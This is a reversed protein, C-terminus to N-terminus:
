NGTAWGRAPLEDLLDAGTQWFELSRGRSRAAEVIESPLTAAAADIHSGVADHWWKSNAVKPEESALSYLELAREVDDDDLLLLAILTLGLLLPMITRYKVAIKLAQLAHKRSEGVKGLKLLAFGLLSLSIATREQFGEARYGASAKRALSEAERYSEVGLAMWSLNMQAHQFALWAGLEEYDAFGRKGTEYAEDYLGLHTLCLGLMITAHALSPKSVQYELICVASQLSSLADDYDGLYIHSVGNAMLALRDNVWGGVETLIECGKRILRESERLKGQARAVWGLALLARAIGMSDGLTTQIDLCEELIQDAEDWDSRCRANEGLLNLVRALQRKEGV